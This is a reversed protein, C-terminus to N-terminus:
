ALRITSQRRSAFHPSRGSVLCTMFRRIQADHRALKLVKGDLADIQKEVAERAKLLPAVVAVLEPRDEVIAHMIEPRVRRLNRKPTSVNFLVSGLAVAFSCSAM